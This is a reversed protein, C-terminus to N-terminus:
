AMEEAANFAAEEQAIEEEIDVMQADHLVREALMRYHDQRDTSLDEFEVEDSRDNMSWLAEAGAQIRRANLDDM